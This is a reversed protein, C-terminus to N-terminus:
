PVGLREVEDGEGLVHDGPFCVSVCSNPEALVTKPDEPHESLLDPDREGGVRAVM